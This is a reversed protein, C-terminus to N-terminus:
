GNINDLPSVIIMGISINVVPVFKGVRDVVNDPTSKLEVKSTSVCQYLDNAVM